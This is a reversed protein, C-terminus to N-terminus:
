RKGWADPDPWPYLIREADLRDIPYFGGGKVGKM